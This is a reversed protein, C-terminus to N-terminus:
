RLIMEKNRTADGGNRSMKACHASVTKGGGHRRERSDRGNFKTRM